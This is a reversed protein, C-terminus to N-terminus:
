ILGTTGQRRQQRLLEDRTIEALVRRDVTLVIPGFGGPGGGGGGAADDHAVIRSGHPVYMLEPGREGVIAWGGPAHRTGAAFRGLANPDNASFGSTAGFGPVQSAPGGFLIGGDPLRTVGTFGTRFATTLFDGAFADQDGMPGGGGGGAMSLMREAGQSGFPHRARYPSSRDHEYWGPGGDNNGGTGWGAGNFVAFVHGQGDSGPKAFTTLYKGYGSHGWDYFYGSVQPSDLYDGAHFAASVSGSCCYGVRSGSAGWHPAGRSAAFSSNHGGGVAYPWRQNAIFNAMDIVRQERPWIDGGPSPGPAPPGGAGRTAAEAARTVTGSVLGFALGATEMLWEMGPFEKGVMKFLWKLTELPANELIGKSLGLMMDRGLDEFIGVPSFWDFLSKLWHVIKDKLDGLANKVTNYGAEIKDAVWTGFHLVSKFASEFWGGLTDCWNEITNKGSITAAKLEGLVWNGFQLVKKFADGLWGGITRAWDGVKEAGSITAGKIEGLIWNGFQIAKRFGAELWGVIESAWEGVKGAGSIVAGGIEHLIWNGFQIAKTFADELWGVIDSAWGAVHSAGSVVADKIETLIWAAFDVAAMFGAALWGVITKAWGAVENAGAVTAGRIESLIWGVFDIASMIGTKLWGVITTAWGAVHSAGSIVAAKIESLIWGVFDLAKTFGTKIYGVITTAWGAVTSAAGSLAKGVEKMADWIQDKFLLPPILVELAKLFVTKFGSLIKEMDLDKLGVILDVFGKIAPLAKAVIAGAFNSFEEKAIALQGPLTKGAAEAAGGYREELEKLVLKQADMTHGSEVLAKVTEKQGDTLKVGAAALRGMGGIPDNLAKGILKMAANLDKGTAVSLGLAAKTARDFVDNGKGVENRVGTFTLLLNEGSQIAEDDVGSKKMLAGALDEIDKKTVNATGGTSKLVAETQAAVKSHETFEDIGLKLAIALGGLAAGGAAFAASKGLGRLKTGATTSTKGLGKASQDASTLARHLSSADGIIEVEVKRAM